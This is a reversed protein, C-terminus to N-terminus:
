TPWGRSPSAWVSGSCRARSTSTSARTTPSALWTYSLCAALAGLGLPLRSDYRMGLRGGLPGSFLMVGASPLLFLGSATVTAAFGYGAIAPPTQVLEPILVFSGFM